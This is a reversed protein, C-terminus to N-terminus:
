GRGDVVVVVAGRGCTASASISRMSLLIRKMRATMLPWSLTLLLLRASM